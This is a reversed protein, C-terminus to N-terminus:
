ARELGKLKVRAATHREAVSLESRAYVTVYRGNVKFRTEAASNVVLSYGARDMWGPIRRRNKRDFADSVSIDGLMSAEHVEDLTVAPPFGMTRLVADLETDEPNTNADVIAHWAETKPPTAKSNFSNLDLSRLYAAVHAFGGSEFWAWLSVWYAEDFNEKRETSWAVFHRRDDAPLYIGNAKENLTIIVGTCNVVSYERLHKEDVRLVDPPAAILTKSHDYFAYRDVDGLDRAESIRLIVSKLFGNFRGMAAAPSIEAFNWAGIARKVPELLSDKGIGQAGGLVIAHNIKEGPRQVRHAFWQLLHMWAEPYLRRGHECWREALIRDGDCVVPARYQNYVRQGASAAWGGDAVIENEIIEPRSPDWTMQHVFSNKDLYGSPALGNVKFALHSNVSSAPFLQGTPRHFYQHAPLYAIFHDLRERQLTTVESALPSGSNPNIWGCKAARKFIARYDSRDGALDDWKRVDKM